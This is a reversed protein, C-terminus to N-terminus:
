DMFEYKHMIKFNLFNLCKITSITISKHDDQFKAIISTIFLFCLGVASTLFFIQIIYCQKFNHTVHVWGYMNNKKKTPMNSEKLGSEYFM